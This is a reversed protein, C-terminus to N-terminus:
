LDRNTTDGGPVPSLSFGTIQAPSIYIYKIIRDRFVDSVKLLTNPSSATIDDIVEVVFWQLYKKVFPDASNADYISLYYTDTTTIAHPISCASIAASCSATLDTETGTPTNQHLKITYSSLPAANTDTNILALKIGITKGSSISGLDYIPYKFPKSAANSQTTTFDYSFSDPYLPIPTNTAVANTCGQFHDMYDPFDVHYPCTYANTIWKVTVASATTAYKVRLMYYGMALERAM